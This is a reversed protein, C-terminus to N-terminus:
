SCRTQSVQDADVVVLRLCSHGLCVDLRLKLIERIEKALSDESAESPLSAAGTKWNIAGSRSERPSRQVYPEVWAFHSLHPDKEVDILEPRKSQPVTKILDQLHSAPDTPMFYRDADNTSKVDDSVDTNKFCQPKQISPGWMDTERKSRNFLRKDNLDEIDGVSGVVEEATSSQIELDQSYQSYQSDKDDYLTAADSDRWHNITPALSLSDQIADQSGSYLSSGSLLSPDRSHSAHRARPQQETPKVSPLYIDLSVDTKFKGFFSEFFHKLLLLLPLHEHKSDRRSADGTRFDKPYFGKSIEDLKWVGHPPASVLRLETLEPMPDTTVAEATSIGGYLILTLERRLISEDQHHCARAAALFCLHYQLDGIKEEGCWIASEYLVEGPNKLASRLRRVISLLASVEAKIILLTPIRCDSSAVHKQIRNRVMMDTINPFLTGKAMETMFNDMDIKSYKPWLGSMKTVNEFSHDQSDYPSAIDDWFDATKNLARLL